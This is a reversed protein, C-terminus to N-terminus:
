FMSTNTQTHAHILRSKMCPMTDIENRRRDIQRNHNMSILIDRQYFWAHARDKLINDNSVIIVQYIFCQM